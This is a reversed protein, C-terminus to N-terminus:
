LKDNLDVVAGKVWGYASSNVIGSHTLHNRCRLVFLMNKNKIKQLDSCINVQKKPWEPTSSPISSPITVKKLKYKIAFQKKNVFVHTLPAVNNNIKLTGTWRTMDAHYGNLETTPTSRSRLSIDPETAAWYEMVNVLHDTPASCTSRSKRLFVSAQQQWVARPCQSLLSRWGVYNTQHHSVIIQYQQHKLAGYPELPATTPHYNMIYLFPVDLM